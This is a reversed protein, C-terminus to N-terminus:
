NGTEYSQEFEGMEEIVEKVGAPPPACFLSTTFICFLGVAATILILM